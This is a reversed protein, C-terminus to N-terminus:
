PTGSIPTPLSMGSGSGAGYGSWGASGGSYVSPQTRGNREDQRREEEDRERQRRREVEDRERQRRTSEEAEAERRREIEKQRKLELAKREEEREEKEQREKEAAEDRKRREVEQRERELEKAKEKEIREMAERRQRERERELNELALREREARAFKEMTRDAEVARRRQIEDALRAKIEETNILEGLREVAADRVDSRLARELKAREQQPGPPLSNPDGLFDIARQGSIEYDQGLASYVADVPDDGHHPSTLGGWPQWRGRLAATAISIIGAMYDLIWSSFGFNKGQVGYLFNGANERELKENFPVAHKLDYSNGPLSRIAWIVERGLPVFSPASDRIEVTLQNLDKQGFNIPANYTVGPWLMRDRRLERLLAASSGLEIRQLEAGVAFHKLYGSHEWTRDFRYDYGLYASDRAM